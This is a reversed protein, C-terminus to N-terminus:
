QHPQDKQLMSVAVPSVIPSSTARHYHRCIAALIDDKPAMAIAIPCQFALKLEDM